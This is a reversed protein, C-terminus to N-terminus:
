SRKRTVVYLLVAVGVGILVWQVTTLGQSQNPVSIIPPVVSTGQGAFQDVIAKGEKVVGLVSGLGGSIDDILGM